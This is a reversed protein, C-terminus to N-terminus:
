HKYQVLISLAHTFTMLVSSISAYRELEDRSPLANIKEAIVDYEMKRRRDLQAQELSMKLEDLQSKTRDHENAVSFLFAFM